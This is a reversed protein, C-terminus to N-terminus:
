DRDALVERITRHAITARVPNTTQPRDAGDLAGLRCLAMFLPFANMVVALTIVLPTWTEM